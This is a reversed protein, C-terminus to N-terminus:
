SSVRLRAIESNLKQWDFGVGPDTKRGPAIDSHGVIRDTTVDPYYFELAVLIAALSAYQAEEYVDCDTGELEIGHAATL